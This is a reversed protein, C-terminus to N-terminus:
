TVEYIKDPLLGHAEAHTKRLDDASPGSALCYVDGQNEDLWYNLIQVGYKKEVALDKKHAAQVDSASVKGLHHVDLYLHGTVESKGTQANLSNTLLVTGACVVFVFLHKM